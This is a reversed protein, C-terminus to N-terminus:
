KVFRKVLRWMQVFGALTGALVGVVTWTMGGQKRDLSAGILYGTLICAVLLTGVWFLSLAAQWRGTKPGTPTM